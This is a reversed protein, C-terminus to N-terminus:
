TNGGSGAGNFVSKVNHKDFLSAAVAGATKVDASCVGACKFFVANYVVYVVETFLPYFGAMVVNFDVKYAQKELFTFVGQVPDKVFRIVVANCIVDEASAIM